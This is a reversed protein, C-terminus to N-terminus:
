NREIKRFYIFAKKLFENTEEDSSFVEVDNTLLTSYDLSFCDESNKSKFKIVAIEWAFAYSHLSTGNVVSLGYNGVRYIRQVGGIFASLHPHEEVLYEDTLM